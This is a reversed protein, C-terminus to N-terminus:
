EKDGMGYYKAYAVLAEFYKCYDLLFKRERKEIVIDLLNYLESKDLFARVSENRGSEYAYKIKIYKIDDIIDQSLFENKDLSIKTYINSVLELLGRLKSTTLKSDIKKINKRKDIKYSVFFMKGRGNEEINDKIVEEAYGIDIRDDKMSKLNGM